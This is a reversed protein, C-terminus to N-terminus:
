YIKTSFVLDDVLNLVMLQGKEARKLKIGSGDSAPMDQVIQKITTTNM